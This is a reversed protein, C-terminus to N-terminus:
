RAVSQVEEFASLPVATSTSGDDYSVRIQGCAWDALNVAQARDDGRTVVFGSRNSTTHIPFIEDGHKVTVDVDIVRAHRQVEAGIHIERLHGPPFILFRYDAGARRLPRFKLPAQGCAMRCVEVFEDVGSTAHAIAPTHGGGCRAGVEFLIPGDATYAFEVHAAGCTLGLSDIAARCMRSIAEEQESSFPAPYQVSVDVRYPPPSKVKQGICLVSVSGQYILVECSHETGSVRREIVVSPEFLGSRVAFNFAEEIQERREVLSVGRSGGFSQDPKFVLPLGMRDVAQAAEELTRVEAFDTSFGTSAWLRRMAAKSRANAAAEESISTLGLQASMHAAPGIGIESMSVIGDVGGRRGVADVIRSCDRVDIPLAVDAELLGPAEPHPDAVFTFFGARRASRLAPVNSRNGGLLLLRKERM